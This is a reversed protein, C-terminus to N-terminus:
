PTATPPVTASPVPATTPPATAGPTVTSPVTTAPASTPTATRTPADSASPSPSTPAESAPAGGPAATPVPALAPVADGITGRATPPIPAAQAIATYAIGPEGNALPQSPLWFVALLAAVGATAISALGKRATSPKAWNWLAGLARKLILILVMALGIAQLALFLLQVVNAIATVADGRSWAEGAGALLKGGSDIATAVVSPFARFAAFILFALLPGVVLAYTAFVVRAWPKLPALEDKPAGPFLRRISAGMRTFFDPVGSLDALIWYGDMRVFPLLQYLIELDILFALILLFELGTVFYLAIAALQFIANFYFGGLDTRLRAWRGLAYSSTVDTYFIPYVLYIGAGMARVTGGGYKLGAAHGLEHFAATLVFGVLIALMLGPNYLIQSTGQAVGHVGYLWVHAAISAVVVVIVVPPLFFITFPRAIANATEKSILAMKLNIALPSRLASFGEPPPAVEGKADPVLGLPVLKELLRKANSADYPRGVKESMRKAIEHFGRKGDVQELARYLLPTLQVFAGDREALFQQQEFSTDDLTGHLVVDPALRPPDLVGNSPQAAKQSSAPAGAPPIGAPRARADATM